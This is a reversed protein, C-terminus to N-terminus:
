VRRELFIKFTSTRAFFQEAYFWSLRSTLAVMIMMTMTTSTMTYCVGLANILFCSYIPYKVYGFYIRFSGIIYIHTTTDFVKNTFFEGNFRFWFTSANHMYLIVITNIYATSGITWPFFSHPVVIIILSTNLHWFGANIYVFRLQDKNVSNLRHLISVQYSRLPLPPPTLCM